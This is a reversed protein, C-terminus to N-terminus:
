DRRHGSRHVFDRRGRVVGQLQRCRNPRTSCDFSLVGNRDENVVLNHPDGGGNNDCELHAVHESIRDIWSAHTRSNNPFLRTLRNAIDDVSHIGALIMMDIIGAQKQEGHRLWTRGNVLQTNGACTNNWDDPYIGRSM